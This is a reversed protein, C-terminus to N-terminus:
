LMEDGYLCDKYGTEKMHTSETKETFIINSNIMERTLSWMLVQVHFWWKDTRGRPFQEWLCDAHRAAGAEWAKM